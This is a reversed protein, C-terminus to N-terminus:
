TGIQDRTNPFSALFVVGSTYTTKQWKETSPNPSKKSWSLKKWVLSKSKSTKARIQRRLRSKEDRKVATLATSPVYPQLQLLWVTNRYSSRFKTWFQDSALTFRINVPHWNLIQLGQRGVMLTHREQFKLRVARMKYRPWVPFIRIM